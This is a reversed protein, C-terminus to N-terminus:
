FQLHILLPNLETETRKVSRYRSNRGARGEAGTPRLASRNFSVFLMPAVQM